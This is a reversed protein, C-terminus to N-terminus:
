RRVCARALSARARVKTVRPRSAVEEGCVAALEPSLFHLKNFGTHSNTKRKKKRSAAGAGADSDDDDSVHAKSKKKKGSAARKKSASSTAGNRTTRGGAQQAAFEAQLRRAMAEDDEETKAKSTSALTFAPSSAPEALAGGSVPPSRSRKLKHFSPLKPKTESEPSAQHEQQRPSSPRTLWPRTPRVTRTPVNEYTCTGRSRWAHTRLTVLVLRRVVQEDDGDGGATFLRTTM